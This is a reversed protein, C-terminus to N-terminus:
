YWAKIEPILKGLHNYAVSFHGENEFLKISAHSIQERFYYAMEYPVIQDDTGHWIVVPYDSPIQRLHFDWPRVYIEADQAVGEIGQQYAGIYDHMFSEINEHNNTFLKKDQPQLDNIMKMTAKYSTDFNQYHRSWAIKMFFRMLKPFNKAIKISIKYKMPFHTINPLIPALGSIAVIGAISKKEIKQASAFVYPVGGSIGFLIVRHLNLGKILEAIDEGHSLLTRHKHSSSLGIGPRDVAIIRFASQQFHNHFFKGELRSGPFGHFYIIPLGQLNGYEAFGLTRGDQLTFTQKEQPLLESM